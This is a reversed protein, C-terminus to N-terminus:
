SYEVVCRCNVIERANGLLADKPYRMQSNGVAFLSDIPITMEHLPKHTKRVVADNETIWTKFKFGLEKADEYDHLNFTTNAENEAIIIARDVSLWYNNNVKNNLSMLAFIFLLTDFFSYALEEREAIREKPLEMQKFYEDIPEPEYEMNNLEDTDLLHKYTTDIIDQTVSEIYIEMEDSIKMKSSINERYKTKFTNLIDDKNM